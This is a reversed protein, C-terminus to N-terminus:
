TVGPNFIPVATLRAPHAAKAIRAKSRLFYTIFHYSTIMM